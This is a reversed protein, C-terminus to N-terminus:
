CFCSRFARAEFHQELNKQRQSIELRKKRELDEIKRRQAQAKRRTERELKRATQELDKAEEQAEMADEARDVLIDRKMRGFQENISYYASECASLVLSCVLVTAIRAFSTM